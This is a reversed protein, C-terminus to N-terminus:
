LIVGLLIFKQGDAYPLLVCERGENQEDLECLRKVRAADLAIRDGVAVRLPAASEIRGLLPSYGAGNERAKLLLALETIGNM